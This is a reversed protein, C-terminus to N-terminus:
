LLNNKYETPTLGTVRKFILNFTSKSKFGADMALGLLSYNKKSPDTMLKKVEEVRYYNVFDYFNSGIGENILESLKGRSINLKQALGSLTLEADLYPKDTEMFALLKTKLVEDVQKKETAVAPLPTETKLEEPVSVVQQQLIGKYGLAFISLSFVLAVGRSQWPISEMHIVVVLNFLFFLNVLVFVIMFFRVWGINVNETNSVEQSMWQEYARWKKHIFFQYITFQATVVMWFLITVWKFEIEQFPTKRILSFVCIVICPLLHYLVNLSLTVRTGTLECVYFWLLPAIILLTPDGVSIATVSFHSLVSQATFSHLLSFSLGLILLTLFFNARTKRLGGSNLVVSVFIGLPVGSVIVIGILHSIAKQMFLKFQLAVVCFGISGDALIKGSTLEQLVKNRGDSM